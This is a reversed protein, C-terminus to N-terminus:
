MFFHLIHTHCLYHRHFACCCSFKGLVDCVSSEAPCRLCESLEPLYYGVSCICKQDGIGRNFAGLFEGEGCGSSTVDLTLVRDKYKTGISSTLNHTVLCTYSTADKALFLGDDQVKISTDVDVNWNLKSFTVSKKTLITCRPDNSSLAVTVTETELANNM